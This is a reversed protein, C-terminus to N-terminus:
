RHPSDPADSVMTTGHLAASARVCGPVEAAAALSLRGGLCFSVGGKPRKPAAPNADVFKLVSGIDAVGMRDTVTLNANDHNDRGPVAQPNDVMSRMKGNADRYEFRVKGKRYWFNPVICHYGVM